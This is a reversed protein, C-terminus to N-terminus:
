IPSHRSFWSAWSASILSHIQIEWRRSCRVSMAFTDAFTGRHIPTPSKFTRTTSDYGSLSTKTVKLQSSVLWNYVSPQANFDKLPMTAVLLWPYRIKLSYLAQLAFTPCGLELSSPSWFLGPAPAHLGVYPPSM